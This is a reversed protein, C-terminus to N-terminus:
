RQCKHQLLFAYWLNSCLKPLPLTAQLYNKRAPKLNWKFASLFRLSLWPNYAQKGDPGFAVFGIQKLCKLPMYKERPFDVEESSETRDKERGLSYKNLINCFFLLYDPSHKFTGRLCTNGQFTCWLDWLRKEPVHHRRDIKRNQFCSEGCYLTWQAVIQYLIHVDVFLTQESVWKGVMPSQSSILYLLNQESLGSDRPVDM